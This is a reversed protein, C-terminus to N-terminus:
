LFFLFLDSSSSPFFFDWLRTLDLLNTVAVPFPGVISVAYVERCAFIFNTRFCIKERLLHVYCFNCLFLRFHSIVIWHRSQLRRSHFLYRRVLTSPSCWWLSWRRGLFVGSELRSLGQNWEFSQSCLFCFGLTFSLRIFSSLSPFSSSSPSSFTGDRKLTKSLVSQQPLAFLFLILSFPIFPFQHRMKIGMRGKGIAM